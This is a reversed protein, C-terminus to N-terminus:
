TDKLLDCIHVCLAKAIKMAKSISCEMTGREVGGIFNHHLEAREALKEQTLGAEKRYARIADGFAKRHPPRHV